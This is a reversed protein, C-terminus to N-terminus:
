FVRGPKRDSCKFAALCNKKLHILCSQDDDLTELYMSHRSTGGPRRGQCLGRWIHQLLLRAKIGEEGLEILFPRM